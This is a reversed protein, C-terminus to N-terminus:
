GNFPYKIIFDKAYDGVYLFGNRYSAETLTWTLGSQDQITHVINGNEDYAIIISPTPRAFLSSPLKALVTRLWPRSALFDIMNFPARRTGGAGVWYLRHEADYRVNDPTGPVSDAWIEAQGARPGKLYVKRIRFGISECVLLFEEDPSLAVGNSLLLGDLVLTTEKTSPDYKFLRGSPGYELVITMVQDVNYKSSADTFYLVGESTVAVDDIFRFRKGDFEDVLVTVKGAPDVSLVGLFADAVILNGGSDFRMGLPRGCVPGLAPQGCAADARGTRAFTTFNSTYDDPRQSRLIRGDKQGTYMYGEADFAISEPGHFNARIVEGRELLLNNTEIVPLPPPNYTQPDFGEPLPALVFYAVAALLAVFAARGIM